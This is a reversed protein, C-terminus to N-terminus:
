TRRDLLRRYTEKNNYRKSALLGIRRKAEEIKELYDSLEDQSPFAIGYIRSLMPQNVDGRWYAGALSLLKFAHIFGTRPVHPGRCLDVFNNNRYLSLEDDDIESVMEVKYSEDQKNFYEIVADKKM